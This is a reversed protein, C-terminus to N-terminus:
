FTLTITVIDTYIGTPAAQGKVIQGYVTVSGSGADTLTLTQGDTGEGFTLSRASNRFLAYELLNGDGDSLKRATVTGNTGGDLDFRIQGAPCATYGIEGTTLLDSTQGSTYTGFDLTTGTVSCANQVVVRVALSGTSTAAHASSALLVLSALMKAVSCPRPPM